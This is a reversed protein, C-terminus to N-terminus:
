KIVIASIQRGYDSEGRHTARRYSFFRKEDAYTDLGSLSVHNVGAEALRKAIYGPLDFMLHGEKRASKFFHENALDQELFKEAFEIQVEYSAPGICPGLAARITESEAGRECMMDVTSQLVGKFAGGWGAHAAGIISTGNSKQGYFLVPGCDATLIGIALGAQDTVLADAEPRGNFPQDVYLCTEGHVQYLTLLNEAEVKLEEAVCIRNEQVYEANDNSGPGCNLSKYIGESVGGLRTFFGHDAQADAPLFNQDKIIM